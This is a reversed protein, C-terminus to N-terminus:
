LLDKGELSHRLRSKARHVLIRVAGRSRGTVTAIEETSLDDAYRLTIVERQASPLEAVESWVLTAADSAIAQTAPSPTPDEEDPVEAVTLARGSRDRWSVIANHAIRFLWARYTGDGRFTSASSLAKFFVHATIDEAVSDDPTQSRVFGYISNLYRQYLESFAAFDEAAKGALLEDPADSHVSGGATSLQM